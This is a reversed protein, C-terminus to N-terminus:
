FGEHEDPHLRYAKILDAIEPDLEGRMIKSADMECSKM